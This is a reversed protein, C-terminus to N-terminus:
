SQRNKRTKFDQEWENEDAIYVTIDYKM